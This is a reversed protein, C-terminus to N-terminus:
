RSVIGSSLTFRQRYSGAVYEIAAPADLSRAAFGLRESRIVAFRALDFAFPLAPTLLRVVYEGGGAGGDVPQDVM